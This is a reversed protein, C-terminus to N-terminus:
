GNKLLEEAVRKAEKDTLRMQFDAMGDVSSLIIFKGGPGDACTGAAVKGNGSAVTISIAMLYRGM